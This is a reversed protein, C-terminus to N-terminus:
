KKFKKFLKECKNFDEQTDLDANELSNFMKLPLFGKKKFTGYKKLINVPTLYISGNIDNQNFKYTKKGCM